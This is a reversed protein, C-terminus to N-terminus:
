LANWILCLPVKPHIDHCQNANGQNGHCACVDLEPPHLFQRLGNSQWFLISYNIRTFPVMILLASTLGQSMSVVLSAEVVLWCDRLCLVTSTGGTFNNLSWTVQKWLIQSFGMINRQTQIKFFLILKWSKWSMKVISSSNKDMFVIYAFRVM